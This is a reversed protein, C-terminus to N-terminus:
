IMVSCLLAQAYNTGTSLNTLWQDSRKNFSGKGLYYFRYGCELPNDGFIRNMKLGIGATASLATNSKGSYAHDPLAYSDNIAWEHFHNTKNFSPGVGADLTVAFKDPNNKITAKAVAYVPLYSLQYRYALNAFQHEQIISGTITTKTLYFANVGFDMRLRDSESGKVMYGLGFLANSHNRKQVTYRDGNLYQINVDQARGEEASFGGAQFVFYRQSPQLSLAQASILFLGAGLITKYMKM